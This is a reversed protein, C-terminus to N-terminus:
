RFVGKIEESNRKQEMMKVVKETAYERLEPQISPNASLAIYNNLEMQETLNQLLITTEVNGQYQEAGLKHISTLISEMYDKQVNDM